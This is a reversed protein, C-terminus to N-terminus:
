YQITGLAKQVDLKTRIVEYLANTYNVQASRLDTEAIIVDLYTKIGAKYQLQITNYVERALDLNDKLTYYDNLNSKYSSIAQVYETNVASKLSVISWDVRKLELEAARINQIRKTGQFIPFALQLGAYSNPFSQSYLKSFQNSFYGGLNYAGFASVTPYYSWKNYKLNAEQLRRQTQLLQYEIRDDYKLVQTTDILIESEMRTSDYLLTIHNTDLYGMEQKLTAYKAKLLEETSKKQAKANNVSITARKYDTKDVIGGQYQNYADKLSRELRVIDEELL